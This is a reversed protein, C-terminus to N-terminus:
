PAPMLFGNEEQVYGGDIRPEDIRNAMCHVAGGSYIFQKLDVTVVDYGRKKIQDQLKQSCEPMVVTNGFVRFNAGYAMADAKDIAIYNESAKLGYREFAFECFGKEDFNELGGPYVIMEGRPLAGLATDIHFFPKKTQLSVVPVGLTKRLFTHALKSSRGHAASHRGPDVAYGSWFVDRFPDYLNDGTGEFNHPNVIMSREPDVSDFFARHLDVEPQREENSFHSMVTKVSGHDVLSFSADATFVQDPHGELEQLSVVSAGAAMLAEYLGHSQEVAKEVFGKRDKLYAKRGEVQLDNAPGHETNPEPIYYHAAGCFLVVPSNEKGSYSVM